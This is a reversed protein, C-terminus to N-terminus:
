VVYMSKLNQFSTRIAELPSAGYCDDQEVILWQIHAASAALFINMWDLIGTGVPAFRKDHGPAMDKCHLLSIRHSNRRILAVPDMDAYKIWYTDAEWRVKEPVTNNLIIDMGTKGDYRTFEFNHNHYSLAMGRRILRDSIKALEQAVGLWDASSRRRKEDLWPMVIQHVGAAAYYTTVLDFNNELEEMPVHVAVIKLGLKGVSDRLEHARMLSRMDTIEIGQYGIQSVQKCIELFDGQTKILSRLTYMQVAISFQPM